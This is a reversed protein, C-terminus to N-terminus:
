AHREDHGARDAQLRHPHLHRCSPGGHMRPSATPGAGCPPPSAAGPLNHSSPTQFTRHEPPPLEPITASVVRGVIAFWWAYQASQASRKWQLEVVEGERLATFTSM